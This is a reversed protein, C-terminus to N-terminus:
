MSASCKVLLLHISRSFRMQALHFLILFRACLRLLHDTSSFLLLINLSTFGTSRMLWYSDASIELKRSIIGTCFSSKGECLQLVKYRLALIRESILFIFEWLSIELILQTMWTQIVYLLFTLLNQNLSRRGLFIWLAM